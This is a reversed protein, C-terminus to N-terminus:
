SIVPYVIPANRCGNGHPAHIVDRTKNYVIDTNFEQGNM